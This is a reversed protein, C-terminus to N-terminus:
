FKSLICSAIAMMNLPLKNAGLACITRTDQMYPRSSCQDGCPRWNSSVGTLISATGISVHQFRLSHTDDRLELTLSLM